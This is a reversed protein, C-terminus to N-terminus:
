PATRLSSTTLVSRRATKGSSARRLHYYRRWASVGHNALTPLVTALEPVFPQRRELQFWIRGLVDSTVDTQAYGVIPQAFGNKATSSGCYMRQTVSPTREASLGAKACSSTLLLAALVIGLRGLNVGLIARSARQLMTWFFLNNRKRQVANDAFFMGSLAQAAHLAGSYYRFLADRSANVPPLWTSTEDGGVPESWRRRTEAGCREMEFVDTTLDHQTV